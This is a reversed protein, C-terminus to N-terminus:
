QFFCFRVLVLLFFFHKDVSCHTRNLSVPCNVQCHKQESCGQTLRKRPSSALREKVVCPVKIHNQCSGKVIFLDVLKSVCVCESESQLCSHAAAYVWVSGFLTLRGTFNFTM